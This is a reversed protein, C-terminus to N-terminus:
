CGTFQLVLCLGFFPIGVHSTVVIAWLRCDMAVRNQAFYFGLLVFVSAGIAISLLKVKKPYAVENM